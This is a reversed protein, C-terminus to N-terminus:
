EGYSYPVYDVVTVTGGSSAPSRTLLSTTTGTYWSTIISTSSPVDVVVGATAQGNSQTFTASTSGTWTSTVISYSQAVFRQVYTSGGSTVTSPSMTSAPAVYTTSTSYPTYVQVTAVSSGAAPPVTTTSTTSGGYGITTTTYSEPIADLVYTASGTSVVSLSTTSGTYYTTSTSYPTFIEVTATQGNSQPQLTTTSVTAGGYLFSVTTYSEPVYQVVYPSSGSTVASSYVTSGSYYSTSTPYPSYVQVTATQANSSPQLTTTSLTSGGYYFM